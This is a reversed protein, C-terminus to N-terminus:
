TPKEHSRELKGFRLWLLALAMRSPNLCANGSPLIRGLMM